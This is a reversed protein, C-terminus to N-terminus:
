RRPLGVRSRSLTQPTGRDLPEGADIRLKAGMPLGPPRRIGSTRAPTFGVRIMTSRIIFPIFNLFAIGTYTVPVYRFGHRILWFAVRAATRGSMLGPGMRSRFASPVIHRYLVDPDFFLRAAARAYARKSCAYTQLEPIGLSPHCEIESGMAWVEAPILRGRTIEKFREILAPYRGAECNARMADPGKSGHALVLVDCNRLARDTGSYDADNYDVGFKLTLVEAGASELLDKLASGFAGSAGTLAFRRGRVQCATGMLRDFLTTYSGLYSEPYVHHMAHYCTGVLLTGHAPSVTGLTSHNRDRGRLILVSAFITTFIAMVSAVSTPDLLAFGLACVAMQAAYEPLVHRALNPLVQADHYVLDRDCSVRSPGQHFGGLWRLRQWGSEQWRHLTYHIADFACSAFLFLAVADVAIALWGGASLGIWAAM